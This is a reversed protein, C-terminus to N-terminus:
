LGRMLLIDFDVVVIAVVNDNGISRKGILTHAMMLTVNFKVLLSYVLDSSQEALAGKSLNDLGLISSSVLCHCDFDDPRNLFVPICRPYFKTHEGCQFGVVILVPIPTDMEAVTEVVAAVDANNGVQEPLTDKVKKLAVAEYWERVALNLAKSALQKGANSTLQGNQEVVFGNSVKKTRCSRLRM